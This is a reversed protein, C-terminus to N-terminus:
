NVAFTRTDQDSAPLPEMSEVPNNLAPLVAPFTVMVAVALSPEPDLPVAYTVTLVVPVLVVVDLEDGLPM